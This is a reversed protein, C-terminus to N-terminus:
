KGFEQSLDLIDKAERSLISDLDLLNEM